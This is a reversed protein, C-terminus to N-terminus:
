LDSVIDLVHDVLKRIMIRSTMPFAKIHWTKLSKSIQCTQFCNLSFIVLADKHYIATETQILWVKM